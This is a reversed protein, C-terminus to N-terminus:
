NTRENTIVAAEGLKADNVCVGAVLEDELTGFWSPWCPTREAGAFAVAAAAVHDWSMGSAALTPGGAAVAAAAAAAAAAAVLWPAASGICLPGAASAMGTAVSPM